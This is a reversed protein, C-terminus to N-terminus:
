YMPHVVLEAFDKGIEQAGQRIEDCATKIEQIPGGAFVVLAYM